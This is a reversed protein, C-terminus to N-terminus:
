RDWPVYNQSWHCTGQRRWRTTKRAPFHNPWYNGMRSPNQSHLSRRGKWSSSRKTKIASSCNCGILLGVDIGSQYPHLNEAITKLYPRKNAVKPTPIQNRQFPISSRSYSEPLKIEVRKDVRQVVLGCIKEVCIEEKGLLTYLNLKIELSKLELNCTTECRHINFWKCWGSSCLNSSEKWSQGQPAVMCVWESMRMPGMLVRSSEQSQGSSWAVWQPRLGICCCSVM